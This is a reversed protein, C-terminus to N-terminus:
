DDDPPFAIATLEDGGAGLELLALAAPQIAHQYAPPTAERRAIALLKNTVAPRAKEDRRAVDFLGLIAATNSWDAPGDAIDELIQRGGDLHSLVIAAAVQVRFWWDWPELYDPGDPPHAMVAAVDAPEFTVRRAAESWLRLLYPMRAIAGVAAAVEDPPERVAPEPECGRWTWLCTEVPRIPLRPDPEERVSFSLAFRPQVQAIAAVMTPAELSSAGGATIEAGRARAQLVAKLTADTRPPLMSALPNALLPDRQGPRPLAHALIEVIEGHNQDRAYDVARKDFLDVVSPDAGADLLWRVAETAGSECASRLPTGNQFNRVHVSVGRQVLEEMMGIRGHLAAVHLDTAGGGNRLGVPVGADLLARFCQDDDRMIAAFLASGWKPHCTEVAAGAGVLLPILSAQKHGASAALAALDQHAGANPDFGRALLLQAVPTDGHAIAVGLATMGLCNRADTAVGEDLLRAVEVADGKTVAAILPGHAAEDHEGDDDRQEHDDDDLAARRAPLPRRLLWAMVILGVSVIGIAIWSMRRM